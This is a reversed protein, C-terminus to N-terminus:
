TSSIKMLAASTAPSCIPRRTPRLCCLRMCFIRSTVQEGQKIGANSSDATVNEFDSAEATVTESLDTVNELTLLATMIKTTSAPYRREDANKEYLVMGSDPSILLAAEANLTPAGSAAAIVNANDTTSSTDSSDSDTNETDSGTDSTDSVTDEDEPAAFAQPVPAASFLLIFCLALATFRNRLINNKMPIGWLSTLTPLFPRASGCAQAARPAPPDYRFSRCHDTGDVVGRRRCAIRQGDALPTGHACYTCRPEINKRLLKKLKM